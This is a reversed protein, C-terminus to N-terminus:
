ISINRGRPVYEGTSTFMDQYLPDISWYKKTSTDFNVLRRKTFAKNSALQHRVSSQWSESNLAIGPPMRNAVFAYLEPLTLMKNESSMIAQGILSSYTHKPMPPHRRDKGSSLKSTQASLPMKGDKKSRLPKTNVSDVSVLGVGSDQCSLQMYQSASGNMDRSYQSPILKLQQKEMMQAHGPEQKIYDGKFTSAPPSVHPSRPCHEGGGPMTERASMDHHPILYSAPASRPTHQHHAYPAHSTHDCGAPFSHSNSPHKELTNRERGRVCRQYQRRGVYSDPSSRSKYNSFTPFPEHYAYYERKKMLERTLPQYERSSDHSHLPYDDPPYEPPPVDRSPYGKSALHARPYDRPPPARYETPSHLSARPDTSYYRRTSASGAPHGISDYRENSDGSLSRHDRGRMLPEIHLQTHQRPYTPPSQDGWYYRDRSCPPERQGCYDRPYYDQVNRADGVETYPENRPARQKYMPPPHGESACGRLTGENFQSRRQREHVREEDLGRDQVDKPPSSRYENSSTMFHQAPVPQSLIRQSVPETSAVTQPQTLRGPAQPQIQSSLQKKQTTYSLFSDDHSSRSLKEDVSERGSLKSDMSEEGAYAPFHMSDEDVHRPGHSLSCTTPSVSRSEDNKTPTIGAQVGCPQLQTTNPSRGLEQVPLRGNKYEFREGYQLSRRNIEHNLKTQGGVHPMLMTYSGNTEINIRKRRSYEDEGKSYPHYREERVRAPVTVSVNENM